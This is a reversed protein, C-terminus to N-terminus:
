WWQLVNYCAVACHLVTSFGAVRKLGDQACQQILTPVAVVYQLVRCCGFIGQVVSCCVKNASWEMSVSNSRLDYLQLVIYFGAVEVGHNCQQLTHQPTHTNWEM